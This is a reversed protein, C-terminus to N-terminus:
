FPGECVESKKKEYNYKMNKKRTCWELNEVRNNEKNFDKHHVENKRLTEEDPRFTKCVLVHVKWEQRYGRRYLKVCLYGRNNIWPSIIKNVGYSFVNGFTSVKYLNEYGPIDKWEEQKIM